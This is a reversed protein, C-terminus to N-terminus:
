KGGSVPDVFDELIVLINSLAEGESVVFVSSDTAGTKLGLDKATLYPYYIMLHPQWNGVSRGDDSILDQASSLMYSMVPRSPLRFKGSQIGAAVEAEVEDAGAGQQYREVQYRNIPFVTHTGEEDFCFPELSEPYARSVFCSAGNTGQVALEYGTETLIYVDADESLSMPAASRALAIEEARPLLERKGPKGPAEQTIAAQPLMLMIMATTLTARVFSKKTGRITTTVSPNM